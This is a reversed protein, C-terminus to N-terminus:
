ADADQLNHCRDDDDYDALPRYLWCWDIREAQFGEAPLCTCRCMCVKVALNGLDIM